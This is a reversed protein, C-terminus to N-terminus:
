SAIKTDSFKSFRMQRRGTEDGLGIQICFVKVGTREASASRGLVTEVQEETFLQVPM